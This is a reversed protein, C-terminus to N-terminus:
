HFTLSFSPLLSPPSSPSSSSSSSFLLYLSLSLSLSLSLYLPPSLAISQHSLYLQFSSSASPLLYCSMKSAFIEDGIGPEATIVLCHYTTIYILWDSTLLSKTRVITIPETGPYAPIYIFTVGIHYHLFSIM